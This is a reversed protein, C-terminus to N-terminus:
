FDSLDEKLYVLTQDLLNYSLDIILSLALSTISEVSRFTIMWADNALTQDLRVFTGGRQWTYSPRSYGLDRQENCNMSTTSCNWLRAINVKIEVASRRREEATSQRM